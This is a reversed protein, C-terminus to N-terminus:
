QCLANLSVSLSSRHVGKACLKPLSKKPGGRRIHLFQAVPDSAFVAISQSDDLSFIAVLHRHASEKLLVEAVEMHTLQCSATLRLLTSGSPTIDDTRSNQIIEWAKVFNGVDHNTLRGNPLPRIERPKVCPM